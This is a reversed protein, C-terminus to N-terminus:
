SMEERAIRVVSTFQEARRSIAEWDGRHVAEPDVLAKGVGVAVAGAKIYEPATTLTVNGTPFLRASPFPGLVDKFFGPTAVRGPFLKILDAGLALARQIENPTLAGPVYPVGANKAIQAVDDDIAPSVLFEAGAAIAETAQQPTLVTGAGIVAKGGDARASAIADLAGPTTMTVEIAAVGGAALARAAGTLGRSRNLRIVAIVGSDTIWGVVHDRVGADNM